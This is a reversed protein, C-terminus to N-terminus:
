PTGSPSEPDEACAKGIYGVFAEVKATDEDSLDGVAKEAAAGDKADDGIEILLDRGEKEDDSMGEPTGADRLADSVVTPDDATDDSSDMEKIVTCFDEVSTSEAEEKKDDDDGDSNAILLIAGIIGGIVIIAAAVAVGIILGKNKPSQSAGPEGPPPPQMVYGPEGEPSAAATPEGQAPDALTPEGQPPEVPSQEGQPPEVPTPDDDPASGPQQPPVPPQDNGSM